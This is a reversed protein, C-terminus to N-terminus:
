TSRDVALTCVLARLQGGHHRGADPSQSVTEALSPGSDQHRLDGPGLIVSRALPGREVTM